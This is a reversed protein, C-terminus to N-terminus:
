GDIMMALVNGRFSTNHVQFAASGRQELCRPEPEAVNILLDGDLSTRGQCSSNGNDFDAQTPSQGINVPISLPLRQDKVVVQPKPPLTKPTQSEPGQSPVMGVQGIVQSCFGLCFLPVCVAFSKMM